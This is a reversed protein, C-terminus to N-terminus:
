AEPGCFRWGDIFRGLEYYSREGNSYALCVTTMTASPANVEFVEIVKASVSALDRWLQGAAVKEMPQLQQFWFESAGPLEISVLDWLSSFSAPIYVGNVESPYEEEDDGEEPSCRKIHDYGEVATTSIRVMLRGAQWNLHRAWTSCVISEKNHKYIGGLDRQLHYVTM